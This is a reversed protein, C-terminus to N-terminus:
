QAQWQTPQMLHFVNGEPDEAGVFFGLGKMEMKEQTVKGGNAKIAETAKDIDPVQITMDFYNHQKESEKPRAYMGGNIGPSSKGTDLMWYDMTFATPDNPVYKDIKWGLVSEYFKKAREPDNAQIEFHVPRNDQM